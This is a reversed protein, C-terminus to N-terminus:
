NEKLIYKSLDRNYLTDWREFVDLDKRETTVGGFGSAKIVIQYPKKIRNFLQRENISFADQSKERLTAWSELTQKTNYPIIYTYSYIATEGTYGNLEMSVSGRYMKKFGDLNSFFTKKNRSKPEDWEFKKTVDDFTIISSDGEFSLSVRDVPNVVTVYITITQGACVFEKNSKKSILLNTSEGDIKRNIKISTIAPPPIIENTSEYDDKVNHYYSTDDIPHEEILDNGFNIIVQYNKVDVLPGDTKFKTILISKVSVNLIVVEGEFSKTVLYEINAEVKSKESDSVEGILVDNIYIQSKIEKIHEPKAYDTLDIVEGGYNILIQVDNEEPVSYIKGNPFEAFSQLKADAAMPEVMFNAAWRKGSKDFRQTYITGKTKWTAYNEIRAKDLGIDNVTINYTINNRMLKSNLMYEKQFDDMYKSQDQWSERANNILAYRWNEPTTPPEIDVPFKHNHVEYGDINEGLIWFEGTRSDKIWGGNEVDKWRQGSYGDNPSGYVLLSYTNFIAENLKKGHVNELKVDM